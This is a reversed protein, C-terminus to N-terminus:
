SPVKEKLPIEFPNKKEQLTYKLKRKIAMVVHPIGAFVLPVGSLVLLASFVVVWFKLADNEPAVDKVFNYLFEPTYAVLVLWGAGILIAVIIIGAMLLRLQTKTM